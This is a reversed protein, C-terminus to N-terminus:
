SNPNPPPDKKGQQQLAYTRAAIAQAKLADMPWSKPMESGVVSVLYKELGLHNVVKLQGDRVYVRLEGRYRRKGLWIGRSDRSRIRLM